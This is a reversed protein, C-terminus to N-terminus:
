DKFLNNLKEVLGDREREYKAKLALYYARLQDNVSRRVKRRKTSEDQDM